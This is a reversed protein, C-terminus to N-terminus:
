RVMRWCEFPPLPMEYISFGAEQIFSTIMWDPWWRCQFDDDAVQDWRWKLERPKSWGIPPWDVQIHARAGTRLGAAIQKLLFRFLATPQHQFVTWSFFLDVESLRTPLIDDWLSYSHYIEYLTVNPLDKTMKRAQDLCTTSTDVGIYKRVKPAIFPILRGVGCGFDLVVAESLEEDPFRRLIDECARLGESSNNQLTPPCFIGGEVQAKTFWFSKADQFIKEVEEVM